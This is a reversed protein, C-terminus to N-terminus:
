DRDRQLTYSFAGLLDGRQGGHCAVCQKISSIGGLMRLREGDRSIFLDEGQRLSILGTTEFRDLPRTPARRLEDMAPLHDSVYTVPEDHLLLGVLDLTQVQWRNTPDRDASSELTNNQMTVHDAPAPVQSFRHPIFGAV